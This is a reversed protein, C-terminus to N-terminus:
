IIHWPMPYEQLRAKSLSSLCESERCAIQLMTFSNQMGIIVNKYPPKLPVELNEILKGYKMTESCRTKRQRHRSRRSIADPIGNEKVDLLLQEIASSSAYSRRGSDLVQPKLKPEVSSKKM